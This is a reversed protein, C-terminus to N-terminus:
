GGAGPGGPQGPGSDKGPFLSELREKEGETLSYLSLRNGLAAADQELQKATSFVLAAFVCLLVLFVLIMNIGIFKLRLRKLM